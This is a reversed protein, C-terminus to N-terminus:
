EVVGMETTALSVVESHRFMNHSYREPLFELLWRLITQWSQEAQDRDRGTVRSLLERMEGFRRPMSLFDDIQAILPQSRLRHGVLADFQQRNLGPPLQLVSLDAAAADASRSALSLTGYEYAAFLDSPMRLQPIWCVSDTLPISLEAIKVGAPLLEAIADVEEAIEDTAVTGNETLEREMLDIDNDSSAVLLELNPSHTWGLATATLNASGILATSENRYFKAHLRDHLYVIGGSKRVVALVQTDSVGAAVEDPRWRTFLVIRVGAPVASLVDSVVAAKAFPACLVLECRSAAALELLSM